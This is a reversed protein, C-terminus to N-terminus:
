MSKRRSWGSRAPSAGGRVPLSFQVPFGPPLKSELFTRVNEFQDNSVSLVEFLPLMQQPTLPFGRECMLLRVKGFTKTILEHGM